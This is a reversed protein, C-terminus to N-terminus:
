PVEKEVFYIRVDVARRTKAPHVVLFSEKFLKVDLKSLKLHVICFSPNWQYLLVWYKVSTFLLWFVLIYCFCEYKM